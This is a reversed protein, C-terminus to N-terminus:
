VSKNAGKAFDAIKANIEDESAKIDEAKIIADMILRMKVQKGAPENYRLRLEDRSSNTYKYYDEPKMGQYSIRYEFEQIMEEIQEEVMADPINIQTNEAIKDLLANEMDRKAKEEATKTLNAKIDAKYEDLTDFESVDKAFEDNLEPLVKKKIEHLKVAFVADKGALEEAGYEAPFTVNIDKEEGIVMGEVQEEFGPIFMGSGLELNQKEATGGEFKVGNVSGSFDIVVTDFKQCPRDTVDEWAGAKDQAKTLEEAIMADTVDAKIKKLKMGKYEGLTFEPAVTIIFAIKLDNDSIAVIEVNPRAVPVIESEKELLEAYLRPLIMDLADDFFVGVGYMRSIVSMPAKGKRFGEINFKHKTKNYAERIAEKWDSSEAEVVYKIESNELIEKNYNM